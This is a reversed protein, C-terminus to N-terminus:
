GSHYDLSETQRNQKCGADDYYKLIRLRYFIALTDKCIHIIDSLGIRGYRQNFNVKVPAESIKFDKKWANVLLELDFAYRKVLLKPFVQDLVERRFLKIGTQTDRVPLGFLLSVMRYYTKSMLKRVLPYKVQSDPHWKSGIVVDADDEEMRKRLECLQDAPLDLDADLFAILDGQAFGHGFRLACGKGGNQEYRIIRVRDDDEFGLKLAEITGDTSGDDVVIVENQDGLGELVALTETVSQLVSREENYAPM